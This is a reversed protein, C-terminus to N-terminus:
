WYDLTIGHLGFYDWTIGVLELYDRTVGPFEWYDFIIRTIGMHYFFDLFIGITGCLKWYYGTIWMGFNEENIELLKWYAETIRM